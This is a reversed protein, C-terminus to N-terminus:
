PFWPKFTKNSNMTKQRESIKISLHFEDGAGKKRETTQLHANHHGGSEPIRHVAHPQEPHTPPRPPQRVAEATASETSNIKAAVCMKQRVIGAEHDNEGRHLQKAARKPRHSHEVTNRMINPTRSAVAQRPPNKPDEEVDKRGEDLRAKHQPQDEALASGPNANGEWGFARRERAVPRRHPPSKQM